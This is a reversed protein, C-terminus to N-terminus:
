FSANECVTGFPGAERIPPTTHGRFAQMNSPAPRAEATAVPAAPSVEDGLACSVAFLLLAGGRASRAARTHTRRAGMRGLDGSRVRAAKPRRGALQM